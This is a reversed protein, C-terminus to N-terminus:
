IRAYQRPDKARKRCAKEANFHGNISKLFDLYGSSVQKEEPNKKEVQAQLLRRKLKAQKKERKAARHVEERKVKNRIQSANFRNPAMPPSLKQKQDPHYVAAPQTGGKVVVMVMDAESEAGSDLLAAISEAALFSLVNASNRNISSSKLGNTRRRTWIGVRSHENPEYIGLSTM